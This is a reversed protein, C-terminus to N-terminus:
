PDFIPVQYIRALDDSGGCALARGDPSFALCQLSEINGVFTHSVFEDGILHIQVKRDAGASALLRGDPSFAVGKVWSTHGGYRKKLTNNSLDVIEVSGTSM